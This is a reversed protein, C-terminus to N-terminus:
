AAAKSRVRRPKGPFPGVAAFAHEGTGWLREAVRLCDELTVRDVHGLLESLPAIRNHYLLGRALRNVRSGVDDLSLLTGARVQDRARKLETETLGHRAVNLLEQRSLDRVEALNEPSTDAYVLFMGGERYSVSESGISYCLGRKERIEQFLRSSMSGGILLNLVRMAWRDPHTESTGDTGMCFHAQETKRNVLQEALVAEPSWLDREAPPGHLDGFQKELERVFQDHDVNGAAVCVMRSPVYHEGLFAMLDARTLGAVVEPKGIVSRGLPHKPWFLTGFVEHVYEEPSDELSKYEELIVSKELDLEAEDVLSHRLMDALIDLALPLHEPLVRTGYGTYEKTTFADLAGGVADMEEAIQRATRRETGKFVMHELLHSIGTQTEAEDRSGADVRLGVSVSHVHPVFETAVRLGNDLCTERVPSDLSM